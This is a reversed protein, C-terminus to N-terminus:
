VRDGPDYEEMMRGVEERYRKRVEDNRVRVLKDPSVRVSATVDDAEAASALSKEMVVYRDGDPTAYTLRVMNAVDRSYEREVLWVRVEEM